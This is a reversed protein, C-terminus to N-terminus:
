EAKQKKIVEPVDDMDALADMMEQTVVTVHGEDDVAEEEETEPLSGNMAALICNSYYRINGLGVCSGIKQPTICLKENESKAIFDEREIADNVFICLVEKIVGIAMDSIQEMADDLSGYKEQIKEIANLTMAINFTHGDLMMPVTKLKIDDYRIHAKMFM